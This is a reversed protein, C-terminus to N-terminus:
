LGQVIGACRPPPFGSQGGHCSIRVHVHVHLSFINVQMLDISLIGDSPIISSEFFSIDRRFSFSFYSNLRGCARLYVVEVCKSLSESHKTDM